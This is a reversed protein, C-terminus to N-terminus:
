LGLVEDPIKVLMDGYPGACVGVRLKAEKKACCSTFLALVLATGLFFRKM